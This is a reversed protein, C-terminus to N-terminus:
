KRKRRTQPIVVEVLKPRRWDGKWIELPGPGHGGRWLKLCLRYRDTECGKAEAWVQQGTKVVRFLFDVRWRIGCTLDVSVQQRISDIEGSLMRAVLIQHLGAELKSSFGDTRQAGFKNRRPIPWGMIERGFNERGGSYTIMQSEKEPGSQKPM